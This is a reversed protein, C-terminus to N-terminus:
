LSDTNAPDSKLELEPESHQAENSDELAQTENGADLNASSVTELGNELETYPIGEELVTPIEEDQDSPLANTQKALIEHYGRVPRGFNGTALATLWQDRTIYGAKRMRTVILKFRQHGFETLNKRRLGRSWKNPSPLVLALHAAQEITLLEPKTRFYHWAAAKIGYIGDGFEVLNIYWELIANKKLIKELVLAGMAERIKRILNKQRSLFAVKVVQQTITSAGRVYRGKRWNLKISKEIEYFDLGPHQYFRADEAVIIAYIVHRSIADVKIWGDYAPGLKVDQKGKDHQWQTVTIQGEQLLWVPPIM